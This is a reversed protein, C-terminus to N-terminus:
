GCPAGGGGVNEWWVIDNAFEAAGLLDIDGDGDMDAAFVEGPGDFDGNVTVKDPFKANRRPLTDEDCGDPIGNSNCDMCLLSGDCDAIEQANSIGDQDCDLSAIVQNNTYDYQILWDENDPAIVSVFKGRLSGAAQLIVFSDSPGAVFGGAYRMDLTGGLQASGTISLVDHESDPTLGGLQIELTAGSRFTVDGLTLTGVGQGAAITGGGLVATQGSSSGNGNLKGGNQVEVTGTGTASGRTNSLRLTGSRVETPGTYTNEGTLELRGSGQKALDGAGSITGDFTSNANNNGIGMGGQNFVNGQGSLGGFGEGEVIRLVGATQVEVSTSSSLSDAIGVQLEGETVTIDGTFGSNNGSLTLSGVGSKSFSGSGLLSGSIEMIVNTGILWDGGSNPQIDVSFRHNLASSPVAVVDSLMLSGFGNLIYQVDQISLSSCQAPTSIEITRHLSTNDLIVDDGAVPVDNEVWNGSVGWLNSLPTGTWTREAASSTITTLAAVAVAILFPIFKRNSFM